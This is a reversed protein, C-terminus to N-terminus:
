QCCTCLSRRLSVALDLWVLEAFAESTTKTLLPNREFRFVCILTQEVYNTYITMRFNALGSESIRLRGTVSEMTSEWHEM